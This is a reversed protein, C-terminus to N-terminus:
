APLGQRASGVAPVQEGTDVDIEAFGERGSLRAAIHNSLTYYGDYVSVQTRHCRLADAQVDVVGPDVVQHTVQEDTIVSPAYAADDGSVQVTADVPVSQQLWARDEHAWSQPIVTAFLRPRSGIPLSRLAAVVARHVQIHDPHAYGGHRDYTVVVDPAIARVVGAVAAGVVEVAAAAFARPHRSAPSGAM